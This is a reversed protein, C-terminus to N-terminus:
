KKMVKQSTVKGRTNIKLIYSGPTWSGGLKYDTNANLNNIREVPFGSSTLVEIHVVDAEGGQVNLSFDQRFPNPYPNSISKEASAMMSPQEEAVTLMPTGCPSQPAGTLDYVFPEAGYQAHIGTHVLLNGISEMPHSGYVGLDIPFTGCVTGDSRWLDEHYANYYLVNDVVAYDIDEYLPRDDILQTGSETGDTVWAHTESFLEMTIKPFLHLRDATPIMYRTANLDAIKEAHGSTGNSRYLAWKGTNDLASIYLNNNWVALSRIDDELSGHLNNDAAHLDAIRFTGGTTGDTRWVENGSVGDDAVFFMVNDMVAVPTNAPKQKGTFTYIQYTGARLGNSRWLEVVNNGRDITFLLISGVGKMYWVNESGTLHITGAETGDTRWLGGNHSRFYVMDNVNVLNDANSLTPDAKVLVTGPLTGDSKWIELGSNLSYYVHTSTATLGNIYDFEQLAITGEPTGDTRWLSPAFTEEEAVFFVQNDDLKLMAYPNSSITPAHIDRILVISGPTGNSRFLKFGHDVNDRGWFYLSNNLVVLEPDYPTYFDEVLLSAIIVPNSGDPRMRYLHFEYYSDDDESADFYYISNGMPVFRPTPRGIGHTAVRLPVTGAETGDSKWIYYTDNQYATYYLLGFVSKFNGMPHSFAQEGHSGNKGTTMDKLLVTGGETGDSKWLEHGHIGDNATFFLTNNVATVNEIGPSATGPRIDSLRVTTEGSGNSKWLERGFSGDLAVFFLTGNVNSLQAPTSGMYTGPRIDKVLETGEATGDTKWLEQGNRGDNASFYVTGNVNTLGAPDSGRKGPQIDKILVTGGATGDSRWLERGHAPTNAVFYVSGNVETIWEPSGGVEGSVIEKVKLTSASTGASKWLELGTGDDASFFLTTGVHTLQGIREFPRLRITGGANGTTKWLETNNNIFYVKSNAQTLSSFENAYVDHRQNIDKLLQSQARASHPMAFFVLCIAPVHACRKLVTLTNCRRSLLNTKM